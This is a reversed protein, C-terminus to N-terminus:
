SVTVDAGEADDGEQEGDEGDHVQQDSVRVVVVVAVVDIVVSLVDVVVGVCLAISVRPLTRSILHHHHWRTHPPPLSINIM